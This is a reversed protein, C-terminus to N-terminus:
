HESDALVFQDKYIGRRLCAQICKGCVDRNLGQSRLYVLYKRCNERYNKLQSRYKIFTCADECATCHGCKPEIRSGQPLPLSTVVSAFRIACSYRENILLGNKGRWGLGANEAIARHSITLPYYQTVDEVNAAVGEITAPIAVGEFRAAMAQANNDLTENLRHYQDAYKNWSEYDVRNDQSVNICDIVSGPYAVAISLISGTDVLVGYNKGVLDKIKAQQVPMLDEYVNEFSAVGVMGQCSSADLLGAYFRRIEDLNQIRESM